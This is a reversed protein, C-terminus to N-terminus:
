FIDNDSDHLFVEHSYFHLIRGIIYKWSIWNFFFFHIQTHIYLYGIHCFTLLLSLHLTYVMNVACTSKWSKQLIKFNEFCFLFNSRGVKNSLSYQPFTRQSFRKGRILWFLKIDFIVAQVLAGKKRKKKKQSSYLHITLSWAKTSNLIKM